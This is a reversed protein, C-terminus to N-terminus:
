RSLFGGVMKLMDHKLSIRWDKTNKVTEQVGTNKVHVDWLYEKSEYAEITRQTDPKDKAGLIGYVLTGTESKGDETVQTWYPLSDARKGPQWEITAFVIFPDKVDKVEPKVFTLGNLYDLMHMEPEGDLINGSSMWKIMDVVMSSAMHSDFATQDKYEEIVWVSTTDAEDRPVCVAYKTVGDPENDRSWNSIAILRQAYQSSIETTYLLM